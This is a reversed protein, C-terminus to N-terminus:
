RSGAGAVDGPRQDVLAALEGGRGQHCQALHEGPVRRRDREPQGRRDPQVQGVGGPARDVGQQHGLWLTGTTAIAGTSTM